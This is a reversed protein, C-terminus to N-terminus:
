NVSLGQPPFFLFSMQVFLIKCLKALLVFTFGLLLEAWGARGTSVPVAILGLEKPM